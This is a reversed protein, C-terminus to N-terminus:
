PYVMSSYRAMYQKGTFISDSYLRTRLHSHFVHKLDLTTTKATCKIFDLLKKM